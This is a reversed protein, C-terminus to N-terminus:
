SGERGAFLAVAREVRDPADHPLWHIPFKRYWTRQRRAFQRTRLAIRAQAESADLEGRALALAEAYGLAQVASPGLGREELRLAEEPWGSALMLATREEIRRDLQDVEVALGVLRARQQRPSAREGWERQWDSLPRGTQELVELARVVRRRDAPHLRAASAPDRQALERHLEEAGVREAHEELRARLDLDVPPGAFLGRLLAALYLGTGGVFLGRRGRAQIADLAEEAAALWAQVDFRENPDVLDILHHPVRALEEASPKATGVDMGRYVQMSDMSLIEMGLRQAVELALASKGSATSGVLCYLPEADFPGPTM